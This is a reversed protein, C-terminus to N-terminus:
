KWVSTLKEDREGTTPISILQPRVVTGVLKERPDGSKDRLNRPEIKQGGGNPPGEKPQGVCIFFSMFASARCCNASALLFCAARLTLAKEQILIDRWLLVLLAVCVSFLNGVLPLSLFHCHSSRQLPLVLWLRPPCEFRQLITVRNESIRKCVQAGSLSQPLKGRM